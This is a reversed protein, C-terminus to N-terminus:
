SEDSSEFETMFPSTFILKINLVECISLLNSFGITLRGHELDYVITKGLGALRALELRSLGAKKRHFQVLRGIDM